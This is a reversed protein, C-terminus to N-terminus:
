SPHPWESEHSLALATHMRTCHHRPTIMLLLPRGPPSHMAAPCAKTLHQEPLRSQYDVTATLLVRCPGALVGALVRCPGGHVDHPTYLDGPSRGDTVRQRAGGWTNRLHVASGEPPQSLRFERGRGHGILATNHDRGCPAHSWCLRTPFAIVEGMAPVVPARGFGPVQWTRLSRGAFAKRISPM